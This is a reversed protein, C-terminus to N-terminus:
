KQELPYSAPPSASWEWMSGPYNKATYGLDTLVTTLWASRVGGTCYVVIETDPTIGRQSLQALIQEQSLLLGTEDLWDRYYLHIAGPIHGGRQEGYPTEGQYERPQRSDIVVVNPHNLRQKLQHQDIEWNLRRHVVFDGTQTSHPERNIGELQGAIAPYGGDVLVAQDHGLTRLMWVIRGDEGWGTKPDGVVVVPQNKFVGLSQLKETLIQDQLILKGRHPAQSQSFDQWAVVHSGPLTGALRGKISRTDLVTAGQQILQIAQQGNVIWRQSLNQIDLGAQQYQSSPFEPNLNLFNQFLFGSSRVGIGVVLLLTLLKLLIPHSVLNGNCIM